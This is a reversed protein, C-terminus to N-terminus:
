AARREHEEVLEQAHIEPGFGNDIIRHLREESTRGDRLLEDLVSSRVFPYLLAPDPRSDLWENLALAHAAAMEESPLDEAMTTLSPYEVVNWRDLLHVYRAAYYSVNM